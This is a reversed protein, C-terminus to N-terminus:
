HLIEIDPLGQDSIWAIRAINRKQAIARVEEASQTLDLGIEVRVRIRQ